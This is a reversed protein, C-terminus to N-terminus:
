DWVDHPNYQYHWRIQGVDPDIAVVSDTFLNDGPRVEGDFDPAPNGTGWYLLNLEPDYTGTLWCNAGGRAWAEGDAPWTDSGPEGPKPVTYCRWLHEGTELNFADLHGRVGFEGGSSGVIVKDKIILPAVTASEGARVDGYTKDWVCKGTVADLAVV